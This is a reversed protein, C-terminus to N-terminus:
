ADEEPLIPEVPLHRRVRRVVRFGRTVLRDGRWSRPAGAGSLVDRVQNRTTGAHVTYRGVAFPEDAPHSLANKVAHATLYGSGQAARRTSASNSGHPYAMSTVWGGTWDELDIRSVTMENQAAGASLTDLHPHTVTHGGIETVPADEHDREAALDAIASRSLMGPRGTWGTTVFMTSRIGRDRLIPLGRDAYDGFGDDFTVLVPRVSRDGGGCWELYETALMPHRGTAVVEDMDRRFDDVAVAFPDASGRGSAISHYLLIPVADAGTFKKM